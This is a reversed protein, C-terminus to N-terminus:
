RTIYKMELCSNKNMMNTINCDYNLKFNMTIEDCRRQTEMGGYGTFKDSTNNWNQNSKVSYDSNKTDNINSLLDPNIKM